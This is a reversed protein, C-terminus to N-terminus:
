TFQINEVPLFPNAGGFPLLENSNDNQAPICQIFYGKVIDHWLFSIKLKLTCVYSLRM